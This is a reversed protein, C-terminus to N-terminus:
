EAVTGEIEHIYRIVHESFGDIHTWGNAYGVGFRYSAVNILYNHKGTPTGVPDFSQEDTILILRDYGISNAHAVAKGIHTGGGSTKRIADVGAMGIRHPLERVDTDFTFVRVKGKIVSALAAAADLRDLESKASVKTGIMSGSVDVLVITNGELPASAGVSAVLAADLEGEFQPAHKAAAIYRFPLVKKAGQQKRLARRILDADVGASQMNRLNRILAMYGLSGKVFGDAATKELAETWYTKKDKGASLAVEWTDAPKLKEFTDPHLAAAIATGGKTLDPFRTKNVLRALMLAQDRDAPKVHALFAADRLKWAADRDYKRLAHADFKHFAKALGKKVQGSLTKGGRKHYIALFETIEDAREIVNAITASVLGDPRGAATRTLVELLLLPAHRLKFKHRAEIALAAVKEPAVEGALTSIRDAIDVGSEHFQSEWLLCALVSRRLEQEKTIHVAPGGMHTFIPQTKNTTNIQAM